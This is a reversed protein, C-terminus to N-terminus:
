FDVELIKRCNFSFFLDYVKGMSSVIFIFIFGHLNYFNM